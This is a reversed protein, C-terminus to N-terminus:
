RSSHFNLGTQTEAVLQLISFCTGRCMNVQLKSREDDLMVTDGFNANDRGAV